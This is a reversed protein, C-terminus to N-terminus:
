YGISYMIFYGLSVIVGWAVASSLIGVRLFDQTTVFTQGTADELAVANMNPFGVAHVCVHESSLGGVVTAEM